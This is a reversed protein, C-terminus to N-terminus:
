DPEKLKQELLAQLRKMLTDEAFANCFSLLGLVRTPPGSTRIQTDEGLDGEPQNVYLVFAGQNGVLEKLRNYITNLKQPDVAM